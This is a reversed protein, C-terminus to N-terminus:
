CRGRRHKKKPRNLANTITMQGYTQNRRKSDWKDRYLKTRRFVADVLQPDKTAELIINVCAWDENSHDISKQFVSGDLFERFTNGEPGNLIDSIVSDVISNAPRKGTFRVTVAAQKSKATLPEGFILQYLQRWEEQNIVSIGASPNIQNGTLAIMRNAHYLERSANSTYKNKLKEREGFDMQPADVRFIFHLGKGSQSLECYTKHLLRVVDAVFNEFGRRYEEILWKINDLDLLCWGDGTLFAPGNFQGPQAHFWSRAQQYTTWTSLDNTVSGMGPRKKKGDKYWVSWRNADAMEQPFYLTKTQM